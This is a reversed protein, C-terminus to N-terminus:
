LDSTKKTSGILHSNWCSDDQEEEGKEEPEPEEGEDYRKLKEELRKQKRARRATFKASHDITTWGSDEDEEQVQPTEQVPATEEEETEVYHRSPNFTPLVFKENKPTEVGKKEAEEAEKRQDEEAKWETALETFKRGGWNVPKAVGNGLKPFNEETPRMGREQAEQKEREIREKEVEWQPKEYNRYRNSKMRSHEM